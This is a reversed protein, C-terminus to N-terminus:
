MQNTRHSYLYINLALSILWWVGTLQPYSWWWFTSWTGIPISYTLVRLVTWSHSFTELSAICDLILTWTPPLSSGSFSGKLFNLPLVTHWPFLTSSSDASTAKNASSPLEGAFMSAPLDRSAYPLMGPLVTVCASPFCAYARHRWSFSTRVFTAM